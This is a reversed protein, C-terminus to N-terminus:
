AVPRDLELRGEEELIMAATTTGIVKTLSALDYITSDTVARRRPTSLRHPRLRALLVLRGHRGVAVRRAPRPAEALAAACSRTSRAAAAAPAHGRAGAARPRAAGGAGAAAAGRRAAAAPAPPSSSPPPPHAPPRRVSAADAMGGASRPQRRRMARGGGRPPATSGRASPRPVPPLSIPFRAPSPSGRRPARPGRGGPEGAGRGVRAPLRARLPLVGLLYPSGFSVAVVPRGATSLAEVLGAFAAAGGGGLRASERPSVYASVIVVDASDARARLSDLEAPTRAITSGCARWTWARRGGARRRLRPRRRPRRPRAYTIRSSAGRAPPRAPGPRPEDRALTLSREAM